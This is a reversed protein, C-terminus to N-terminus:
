SSLSTLLNKLDLGAVDIEDFADFLQQRVGPPMGLIKDARSFYLKNHDEPYRCAYYVQYVRYEEYWAM